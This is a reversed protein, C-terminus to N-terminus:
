TGIAPVEAPNGPVVGVSDDGDFNYRTVDVGTHPVFGGVVPHNVDNDYRFTEPHYSYNWRPKCADPCTGDKLIVVSDFLVRIRLPTVKYGKDKVFKEQVAYPKGRSQNVVDRRMFYVSIKDPCTNCQRFIEENFYRSFVPMNEKGKLPYSSLVKINKLSLPIKLESKETTNTKVLNGLDDLALPTEPDITRMVFAPDVIFVFTERKLKGEEFPDPENLENFQKESISPIKEGVKGLYQSITNGSITIPYLTKFDEKYNRETGNTSIVLPIGKKEFLAKWLNQDSFLQNWRKCVCAARFIDPPELCKLSYYQLANHDPFPDNSVALSM